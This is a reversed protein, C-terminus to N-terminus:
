GGAAPGNDHDFAVEIAQQNMLRSNWPYHCQHTRRQRACLLLCQQFAEILDNKHEIPIRGAASRAPADCCPQRPSASNGHGGHWVARLGILQRERGDLLQHFLRVRLDSRVAARFCLRHTLDHGRSEKAGNGTTNETQASRLRYGNAVEALRWLSICDCKAARHPLEGPQTIAAVPPGERQQDADQRCYTQM